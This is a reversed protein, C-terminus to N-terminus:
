SRLVLLNQFSSIIIIEKSSFIEFDLVFQGWHRIQGMLGRIYEKVPPSIIKLSELVNCITSNDVENKNPRFTEWSLLSDLLRTLINESM